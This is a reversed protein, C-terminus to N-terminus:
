NLGSFQLLAKRYLKFCFIAFIQQYTFIQSCINVEIHFRKFKQSYESRFSYKSAFYKGTYSFRLIRQSEKSCCAIRLMLDFIQIRIQAFIKVHIQLSHHSYISNSFVTYRFLCIHLSYSGYESLNAEFFYFIFFNHIRCVRFQLQTRHRTDPSSQVYHTTYV